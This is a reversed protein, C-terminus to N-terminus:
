EGNAAESAVGEGEFIEEFETGEGGFHHHEEFTGHFCPEIDDDGAAGAGPFCSKEIGEGAEDGIVVTDNSDFIGCFELQLLFVHEPEFGSWWIDLATTSDGGCVENSISETHPWVSDDDAFAAASFSEVHELCHVGTM